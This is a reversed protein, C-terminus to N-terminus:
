ALTLGAERCAATLEQFGMEAMELPNAKQPDQEAEVVIWGAYGVERLITAVERFDVCGDRDGPVTFVGEKVGKLFSWREKKLRELVEPRINKAHVHNV